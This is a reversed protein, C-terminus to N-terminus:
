PTNAFGVWLIVTARLGMAQYNAAGKEHRTAIRRFQNYRTILRERKHRQRDSLRDVPGTRYAHAKRPM